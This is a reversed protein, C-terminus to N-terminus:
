LFEGGGCDHIVAGNLKIQCGNKTFVPDPDWDLYLYAPDSHSRIFHYREELLDGEVLFPLGERCAPCSGDAIRRETPNV